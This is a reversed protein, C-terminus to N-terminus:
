RLYIAHSQIDGTVTTAKLYIIKPLHDKSFTWIRNSTQSKGEFLVKGELNFLQIAQLGIPSIEIWHPGQTYSISNSPDQTVEISTPIFNIDQLTAFKEDIGMFIKEDAIYGYILNAPISGIDVKEDNFKTKYVLSGHNSFYFSNPSLPLISADTGWFDAYDNFNLTELTELNVIFENTVIYMNGAQDKACTIISETLQDYERFDLDALTKVVWNQGETHFFFKESPCYLGEHPTEVWKPKDSEDSRDDSFQAEIVWNNVEWNPGSFLYNETGIYIHGAANFHLSILQKDGFDIGLSGEIDEKSLLANAQGENFQFITDGQIFYYEENEENHLVSIDQVQNYKNTNTYFNTWYQGDYVYHRSDHYYYVKGNPELRTLSYESQPPAFESKIGESTYWGPGFLYTWITDNRLFHPKETYFHEQTIPNFTVTNNYGYDYSYLVGKSDRKLDQPNHYTGIDDLNFIKELENGNKQYYLAEDGGIFLSDGLYFISSPEFPVSLSENAWSVGDYKWLFFKSDGGNVLMVLNSDADVTFGHQPSGRWGTKWEELIETLGDFRYIDAYYASSSKVVWLQGGKARLLKHPTFSLEVGWSIWVNSDSDWYQLQPALKWTKGEFEQLELYKSELDVVEQTQTNFFHSRDINTTWVGNPGVFVRNSTDASINKLYSIEQAFVTTCCIVIVILKIM